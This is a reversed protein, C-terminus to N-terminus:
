SRPPFIGEVCICHQIVQFPQMNNHPQGSGFTTTSERASAQLSTSSTAYHDPSVAPVREAVTPSIADKAGCNLVHSHSPMQVETLAVAETGFVDGLVRPTLGPGNGAGLLCRGRLDPLGFTEAGDGGFTTGLVSYLADYQAIPLLRGDCPMWGNPAYNGCFLMIEGIFAETPM